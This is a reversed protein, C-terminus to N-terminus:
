KCSSVFATASVTATAAAQYNDNNVCIYLQQAGALGNIPRIENMTNQNAYLNNGTAPITGKSQLFKNAQNPDTTIFYHCQTPKTPKALQRTESQMVSLCTTLMTTADLTALSALTKISNWTILPQGVDRIDFRYVVSSTNPPLNVTFVHQSGGSHLYSHLEATETPLAEVAKLRCSVLTGNPQWEQYDSGRRGQSYTGRAKLKGSEYWFTCLGTAVEPAESLLKGEWQKKWSPYYFDRVIGTPRGESDHRILRAYTRDEPISTPAWDRDFYLTDAPPVPPSPSRQQALTTLPLLGIIALLYHKMEQLFSTILSSYTNL